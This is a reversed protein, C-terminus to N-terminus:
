GTVLDIIKKKTMSAVSAAVAAVYFLLAGSLALAVHLVNFMVFRGAALAYIAAAAAYMLLALMMSAALRCVYEYVIVRGVRGRSVGFLRLFGIERRRYFLEADTNMRIFICFILFCIYFVALLIVAASDFMRQMDQVTQDFNNITVPPADFGGPVNDAGLWRRFAIITETDSFLGPYSLQRMGEYNEKEPRLEGFLALTDHPIYIECEGSDSDHYLRYYYDGYYRVEFDESRGFDDIDVSYAVGAVCFSRGAFTITKGVIDRGGHREAYEPSVLIENGAEPFRGYKIMGDLAFVSDKKDALYNAVAGGEEAYYPYYVRLKSRYREDLREVPARTCLLDSNTKSAERRIYEIEFNNQVASALMVLFVVLAFPFIAGLRFEGRRRRLAFRFLNIGRRKKTTATKAAKHPSRIDRAARVEVRGIKGYDLYLIEDALEDFCSEHTAVLVIKGDNKLSAIIEATLRSNEADLSATPEDALLLAPDNILSRLIAACQREGGSLEDPLKRLLETIGLKEALSYIAAPDNKIFLLNDYVTIGSLLLSKQYIYGVDKGSLAREGLTVKGDFDREVGGIINFLTSKGCGSVGKIVYLKGPSFTYSVDNIITRDYSKTIHELRLENM